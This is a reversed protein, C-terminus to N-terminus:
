FAARIGGGLGYGSGYYKHNVLEANAYLQVNSTAQYRYELNLQDQQNFSDDDSIDLGLVPADTAASGYVITLNNSKVRTANVQVAHRGIDVNGQIGYFSEGSNDRGAYVTGGVFRQNGLARTYGLEGQITQATDAYVAARFQNNARTIQFEATGGLQRTQLGAVLGIRTNGIVPSVYGLQYDGYDAFSYGGGSIVEYSRTSYPLGVGYGATVTGYRSKLYVNATSLEPVQQQVIPSVDVGVTAGATWNPTYYEGSVSVSGNAVLSNNSVTTVPLNAQYPDVYVELSNGQQDTLSAEAVFPGDTPASAKLYAKALSNTTDEVLTQANYSGNRRDIVISSFGEFNLDTTVPQIDHQVQYGLQLAVNTSTRFGRQPSSATTEEEISTEIVEVASGGDTQTSPYALGTASQVPADKTIETGYGPASKHFVLGPTQPSHYASVVTGAQQVYGAGQAYIPAYGTTGIVSPAAYSHADTAACGGAVGNTSHSYYILQNLYSQYDGYVGCPTPTPAAAYAYASAPAIYAQANPASVVYQNNAYTVTPYAYSYASSVPVTNAYIAAYPVTQAHALSLSFVATLGAGLLCSGVNFLRSVM